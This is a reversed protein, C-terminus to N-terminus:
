AAVSRASLDLCGIAGTVTPEAHHDPSLMNLGTPNANGTM